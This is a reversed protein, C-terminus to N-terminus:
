RAGYVLATLIKLLLPLKRLSGARKKVEFDPMTVGLYSSIERLIREKDRCLDEYKVFLVHKARRWSTIHEKLRFKDGIVMYSYALFRKGIPLGCDLLKLFMEAHEKRVEISRCHRELWKNDCKQYLSAINDGINGHLYIGRYEFSPEEKFHMHTQQICGNPEGLFQAFVCKRGTARKLLGIMLRTGCRGASGIIYEM